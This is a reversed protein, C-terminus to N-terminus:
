LETASRSRADVAIDTTTSPDETHRQDATGVTVTDLLWFVWLSRFSLSLPHVFHRRMSDWLLYSRRM